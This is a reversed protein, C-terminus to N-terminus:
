DAIIYLVKDEISNILTRYEMLTMPLAPKFDKLLAFYERLEEVNSEAVIESFLGM